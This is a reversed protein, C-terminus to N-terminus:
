PSPKWNEALLGYLELDELRDWRMAHSRQRGEHTMGIKQMVRGSAPNRSMHVAFVRRLGLHELGFQVTARAAETCFGQNWFPRGIWYGLEAMHHRVIQMLSISGLLEGDSRRTVAFTVDNGAEFGAPHSAIWEEAMGDEYPHPINITTDAVEYAGALEQVAPGDGLVFPRLLLRETELSPREDM